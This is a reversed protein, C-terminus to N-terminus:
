PVINHNRHFLNGPDYATKIERLRRHNDPTFATRTRTPDHLFNLFSGGTSWPAFQDAATAPGDITFSLRGAMLDVLALSAGKYPVHMVDIRAMRKFLESALHPPTGTGGSGFTLQGPKERAIRILDAISRVPLEPHVALLMPSVVVRTIPAFDGIADYGGGTYLHPNIAHTGQHALLLTYGDPVSKAVAAAGITGAAGARNDVVIPQGLAPVLMLQPPRGRGVVSVAGEVEELLHGRLTSDGRLVVM